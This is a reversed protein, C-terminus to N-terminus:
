PRLVGWGALSLPLQLLGAWALPAGLALAKRLWDRRLPFLWEPLPRGDHLYGLVLVLGFTLLVVYLPYLPM